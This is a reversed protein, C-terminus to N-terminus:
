SPLMATRPPLTPQRKAMSTVPIRRPGEHCFCSSSRWTVVELHGEAAAHMLANYQEDNDVANVDAGADLLMRVTEVDPGTAAYILATRRQADCQDVHAGSKRQIKDVLLKVTEHHGNFAAFMLATRGAPDTTDAEMGQELAERVTEIDGDRAADHFEGLKIRRQAPTKDASETRQRHDPLIESSPDTPPKSAIPQASDNGSCGCSLAALLLYLWFGACRDISRDTTMQIKLM